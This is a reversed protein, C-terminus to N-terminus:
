SRLGAMESVRRAVGKMTQISPRVGSVGLRVKLAFEVKKDWNFVEVRRLQMPDVRHSNTGPEVTCASQYGAVRVADVADATVRGFPYAFHRIETGLVDELYSKSDSVEAKLEARSAVSLDAHTMSHSGIEVGGDRLLRLGAVDVLDRRSWGQAWDWDNTRGIYGAVIFATAPIRLDNLIPLAKDIICRTGDDFTVCVSREPIESSKEIASVVDSLTMVQYGSDVLWHMQEKFKWVPCCWQREGATKADDIIHYMLIVASCM